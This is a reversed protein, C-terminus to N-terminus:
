EIYISDNKGCDYYAQQKFTKCLQVAEAKKNTHLSLDLVDIANNDQWYGYYFKKLRLSYALKDIKTIDRKSAQKLLRNDTLAVFYGRKFNVAEFERGKKKFSVGNKNTTLLQQLKM